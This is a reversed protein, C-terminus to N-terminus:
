DNEVYNLMNEELRTIGIMELCSYSGQLLVIGDLQELAEEAFFISGACMQQLLYQRSFDSLKEQVASLDAEETEYPIWTEVCIALPLQFGGPLVIYNEEYIKACGTGSIGSSNSFNIRKNGIILSYKKESVTREGRFQFLTPTIVSLQRGTHAFVEGKANTAQISLGCDTYGSILVQGQKVAQGVSCLKNGQLVTIQQIVGDRSAVISSVSNPVTQTQPDKRERVSIVATCGYTNVGAWSLEPMADLLANKMKESRVQRRNAGFSIGCKAAAEIIKRDPVAANGEVRVFFVSSPAWFSLLLLALLGIVLVPRTHLRLVTWYLGARGTQELKEGRRDALRCLCRWEHRQIQFRIRFPGTEEMNRVEVQAQQAAALFGGIDASTLEVTIVGAIWKWFDM